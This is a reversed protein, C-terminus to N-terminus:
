VYQGVREKCSARGIQNLAAGPDSVSLQSFGQIGLALWVGAAVFGFLFVLVCLRTAQRSREALAGDTRLMLWAGGHACIPLTCTQVGTVLACRTHRRRGSFCVVACIISM